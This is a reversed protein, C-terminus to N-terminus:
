AAAGAPAALVVLDKFPCPSPDTLAMPAADTRMAPVSGLLLGASVMLAAVGLLVSDLPRIM